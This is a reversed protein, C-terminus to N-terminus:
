SDNSSNHLQHPLMRRSECRAFNTFFKTNSSMLLTLKIPPTTINPLPIVDDYYGIAGIWTIAKTFFQRLYNVGGADVPPQPRRHQM